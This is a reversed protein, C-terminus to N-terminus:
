QLTLSTSEGFILGVNEKNNLQELFAQYNAFVSHKACLLEADKPMNVGTTVFEGDCSLMRM